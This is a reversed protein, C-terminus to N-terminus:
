RGRALERVFAAAAALDDAGLDALAGIGQHKPNSRIAEVIAATDMRALTPDAALPRVKLARASATDTKGSEGHCRACHAQFVAAGDPEAAADTVLMGAALLLPGLRRRSMM